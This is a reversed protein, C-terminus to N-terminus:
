DKRTRKVLRESRRPCPSVERTRKRKVTDSHRMSVSPEDSEAVTDDVEPIVLMITNIFPNTNQNIADNIANKIANHIENDMEELVCTDCSDCADCANNEMNINGINRYYEDCNDYFPQLIGDLTMHVYDYTNHLESLTWLMLDSNNIPANHRMSTANLCYMNNLETENLCLLNVVIDKVPRNMYMYIDGNYDEVVFEYVSNYRRYINFYIKDKIAITVIHDLKSITTDNVVVKSCEFLRQNRIDNSYSM